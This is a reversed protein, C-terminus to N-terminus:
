LIRAKLWADSFFVQEAVYKDHRQSTIRSNHLLISGKNQAAQPVASPFSVAKAGQTVPILRSLLKNKDHFILLINETLQIQERNIFRRQKRFDVINRFVDLLLIGLLFVVTLFVCLSFVDPLFLATDSKKYCYLYRM